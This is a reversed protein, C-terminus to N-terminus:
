DQKLAGAAGLPTRYFRVVGYASILLTIITTWQILSEAEPGIFGRAAAATSVILSFESAQGLRVGLEKSFAPGEGSWRLMAAYVVPKVVLLLAALLFSPVLVQLALNPDLSAGLSFFFLVLFFDRFFRLGESLFPSLPSRALALGAVFAGVELTFGIAASAIALGFCWGLALLYLVEHYQDCSRMLRRVVFQEVVFAGAVLLALKLPLLAFAATSTSEWALMMLVLVALLDQAILIAISFSGMRKHHLEVTPLLKVVLITSSFMLALGAFLAPQLERLWLYAAASFILVLALASTAAILATERALQVLRQPHLVIGALFLLMVVGIDAVGDIFELDHVLGLVWPGAIIGSFIYAAIIPQRLVIALWTLVSTFMIVIGIDRFFIDM